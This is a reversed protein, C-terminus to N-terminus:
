RVCGGLISSSGRGGEAGGFMDLVRVVLICAVYARSRCGVALAWMLMLVLLLKFPWGLVGSTSLRRTAGGVGKHVIWVKRGSGGVVGGGDASRVTSGMTRSPFGLAIGVEGVIGGSGDSGLMLVALYAVQHLADLGLAAAVLLLSGSPLGLHFPLTKLTLSHDATLLLGLILGGSYCWRTTLPVGQLASRSSGM